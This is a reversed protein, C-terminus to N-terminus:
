AGNGFLFVLPRPMYSLLVIRAYELCQVPYPTAPFVYPGHCLNHISAKDLSNLCPKLPESVPLAPLPPLQPVIFTGPCAGGREGGEGRKM